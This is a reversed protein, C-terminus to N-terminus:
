DPPLSHHKDLRWDLRDAAGEGLASGDATTKALDSERKLRERASRGRRNEIM